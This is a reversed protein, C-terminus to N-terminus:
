ALAPQALALRVWKSSQLVAAAIIFAAREAERAFAATIGAQLDNSIGRLGFNMRLLPPVLKCRTQRAKAGVEGRAKPWNPKFQGARPLASKL